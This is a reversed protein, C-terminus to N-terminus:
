RERAHIAANWILQYFSSCIKICTEIILWALIYLSLNNYTWHPSIIRHRKGREQVFREMNHILLIYWSHFYFCIKTAYCIAFDNITFNYHRFLNITDRYIYNTGNQVKDTIFKCSARRLLLPYVTYSKYSSWLVYQLRPFLIYLINSQM